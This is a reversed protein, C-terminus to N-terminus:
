VPVSATLRAGGGPRRALSWAGTGTWADIIATGTGPQPDAPPGSGDDDVTVRIAGPLVEVAVDASRAGGHAAANLLAQEVIRYVAHACEDAAIGSAVSVRVDVSGAYVAALEDLAHELGIVEIRPAIRRGLSRVGSGRLQELDAVVAGIADATGPTAEAIATLRMGSRLLVGQVEDHLATAVESRVRDDAEVILTRQRELLEVQARLQATQSAIRFRAYGIGNTIVLVLFLMLGANIAMATWVDAYVGKGTLPDHASATARVAMQVATAAVAAAACAVLYRVRTPVRMEGRRWRGVLVMAGVAAVTVGVGQLTGVVINLALERTSGSSAGAVTVARGVYLASGVALIPLPAFPWPGVILRWRSLSPAADM